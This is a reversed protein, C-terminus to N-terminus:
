LNRLKRICDYWENLSDISYYLSDKKNFIKESIINRYNTDSCLKNVIEIYEDKNTAVCEMINMYKYFGCTMRGMLKQGELTVVPKGYQFGDLSTFFGGFPFPLLIIDSLYIYNHYLYLNNSTNVFIIRDLLIYKEIINKINIYSHNSLEKLILITNDNSELIIRLTNIFNLSFKIETQICSLIIINESIGLDKRSLFVRNDKILSPKNINEDININLYDPELYFCLNNLTILKESYYDQGNEPEFLKSSIYYDITSIGSTDCYGFSTIQIPAIRSHALNYIFNNEIIEPYIIIDLEYSAIIDRIEELNSDNVSLIIPNKITKIFNITTELKPEEFFFNFIEIDDPCYKINGQFLVFVSHFLHLFSSIYGIRIKKNKNIIKCNEYNLYPAYKRMCESVIISYDKNNLDFYSKLMIQNSFCQYGSILKYDPNLELLKKAKITNNMCEEFNNNFLAEVMNPSLLNLIYLKNNYQNWITQIILSTNLKKKLFRIYQVMIIDYDNESDKNRDLLKIFVNNVNDNYYESNNIIYEYFSIYEIIINDSLWELINIIIDYNKNYLNYKLKLLHNINNIRIIDNM